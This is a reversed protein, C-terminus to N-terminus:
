DTVSEAKPQVVPVKPPENSLQADAATIAVLALLAALFNRPRRIERRYPRLRAIALRWLAILMNVNLRVM